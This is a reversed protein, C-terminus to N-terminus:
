KPPMYIARAIAQALRVAACSPAVVILFLRAAALAVAAAAVGADHREMLAAIPDIAALQSGALAHLLGAAVVATVLVRDSRKV